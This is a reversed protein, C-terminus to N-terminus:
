GPLRPPAGARTIPQPDPPARESYAARGRPVFRRGPAALGLRARGPIVSLGGARSLRALCTGGLVLLVCVLLFLLM